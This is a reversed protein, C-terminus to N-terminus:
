RGYYRNAIQVVRKRTEEIEQILADGSEFNLFSNIIGIVDSGTKLVDAENLRLVTEVTRM